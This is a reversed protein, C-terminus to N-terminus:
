DASAPEPQLRALVGVDGEVELGAAKAQGPTLHASILGLMIQPTGRLV